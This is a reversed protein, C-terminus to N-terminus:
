EREDLLGFTNDKLYYLQILVCITWLVLMFLLGVMFNWLLIKFEAKTTFLIFLLPIVIPYVFIIANKLTMKIKSEGLLLFVAMSKREILLKQLYLLALIAITLIYQLLVELVMFITIGRLQNHWREVELRNNEFYSGKSVKRVIFDYELFDSMDESGVKFVNYKNTPFDIRKAGEESIIAGSFLPFDEIPPQDSGFKKEYYFPVDNFLVIDGVKYKIENDGYYYFSNGRIFDDSALYNPEFYDIFDNNFYVIDSIESPNVDLTTPKLVRRNWYFLYKTKPHKKIVVFEDSSWETEIEGLFLSMSGSGLYTLSRQRIEDYKKWEPLRNEVLDITTPTTLFLTPYSIIMVMLFQIIRYGLGGRQRTKLSVFSIIFIVVLFWILRNRAYSLNSISNDYRNNGLSLVIWEFLQPILHFMLPVLLMILIVQPLLYRVVGEFSMGQQKLIDLRKHYFKANNKFVIFIVSIVVVLMFQTLKFSKQDMLLTEEFRINAAGDHQDM